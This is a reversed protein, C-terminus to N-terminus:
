IMFLSCVISILERDSEMIKSCFTQGFLRMNDTKTAKVLKDDNLVVSIAGRVLGSAMKLAASLIIFLILACVACVPFSM